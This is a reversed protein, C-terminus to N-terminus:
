FLCGYGSKIICDLEFQARQQLAPFEITGYKLIINKNVVTRLKTEINDIVPLFLQDSFPIIKEILRNLQQPNRIVLAEVLEKDPIFSFLQLMESTSLFHQQPCVKKFLPHLKGGVQKNNILIHRLKVDEPDLYHVDGTAIILKKAERAYDIIKTLIVKLESTSIEYQQLLHQYVPLPQIEIYDYFSIEKMLEEDRGFLAAQFITGNCCGSGILLDSRYDNIVSRLLKPELYFYTTHALSILHYLSQLGSRNRALFMM